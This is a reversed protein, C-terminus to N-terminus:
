RFNVTHRNVASRLLALNTASRDAAVYLFTREDLMKILHLQDGLTLLMDELTTRINLVQITKLKSKVMESNYASAVELDFDARTSRSALPMGTEMDVISAGIFGNVDANINDIIRTLEEQSAMTIEQPDPFTPDAPTGAHGGSVSGLRPM